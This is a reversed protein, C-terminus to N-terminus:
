VLGVQHILPNDVRVLHFVSASGFLRHAVQDVLQTDHFALRMLLSGLYSAAKMLPTTVYELKEVSPDGVPWDFRDVSAEFM